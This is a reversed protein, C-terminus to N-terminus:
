RKLRLGLMLVAVGNFVLDIGLLLGLVWLSNVPWGLVILAGLLLTALSSAIIWGWGATHRASFGAALRFGGAVLLSVGLILTLVGAALVPNYIAIAGAAVYLLGDLLWFSFAGWAKVQFSHIIQAIGSALLFVGLTVVSLVTGLVENGLVIMGAVIMVIGLAVFWGWKAHLAALSGALGSAPSRPLSDSPLSM